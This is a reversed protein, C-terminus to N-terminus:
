AADTVPITACRCNCVLAPADFEGPGIAKAGAFEGADIVFNEGTERTQGDLIAHADRVEGDRASLWQKRVHVGEVTAFQHYAAVSGASLSRTAETRAILLARSPAFTAAAQIRAQIDNVSEGAAIGQQIVTRIAAQTTPTVQSVLSALRAETAADAASADMAWRRGLQAAGAAFGSRITAALAERLAASFLSVEEPPFLLDILTDALDRRIGKTDIPAEALRALIRSRQAVLARRTSRALAIEAPTHVGVLWSRWVQAREAADTPIALPAPAELDAPSALLHLVGGKHISRAWLSRVWLARLSMSAEAPPPAAITGAALRRADQESITPFAVMILTVAGEITLRGESLATLIELLSAIQAGNLATDAVAGAGPAAAPVAEEAVLPADTFGEYAAAAAPEAGLLVWSTVRQLRADRSEQLAAVGSFDHVVTLAADFRRAIRTLAHDLRAAKARLTQWYISDQQQATAYNATPLGVRTPPVGFVALVEDRTLLRQEKFELDRPTWGQFEAKIHSSLVLAAKGAEAFRGYEAAIEERQAKTLTLSESAPSLVVDPRGRKAGKAAMEAAAHESNLGAKLASIMGEGVQDRDGSLWSPMRVLAVSEAGYHHMGGVVPQYEIGAFTGAEDSIIRCREPHLLKLSTPRGTPGVILVPVWGVPLLYTWLQSEWALRDLDTTPAALLDLVPHEHIVEAKDGFGRVLRLPLGALDEGIATTCARVWPFEAYASMAAPVSFTASQPSTTAAGTPLQLPEEWRYGLAKLVGGRVERWTPVSWAMGAFTARNAANTLQLGRDGGLPSPWFM